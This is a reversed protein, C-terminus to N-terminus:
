KGGSKPLNAPTVQGNTSKMASPHQHQQAAAAANRQHLVNAPLKKGTGKSPLQSQQQQQQQQQQTNMQGQGGIAFGGQQQHSYAAQAQNTNYKKLTKPTGQTTQQSGDANPAKLNLEWGQKQKNQKLQNLSLKDTPVTIPQKPKGLGDVLKHLDDTFTGKKPITASAGQSQQGNSNTNMVVNSEGEVVTLEVDEGVGHQVDSSISTVSSTNMPQPAPLNASVAQQTFQQPSTNRPVAGAEQSSQGSKSSATSPHTNVQLSYRRVAGSQVNKEKNRRYEELEKKHRDELEEMEKRQRQLLAQLEKDDPDLEFTSPRVTPASGPRTKQNQPLPPKKDTFPANELQTEDPSEPVSDVKQNAPIVKGKEVNITASIEEVSVDSGDSTNNTDIPVNAALDEVNSIQQITPKEDKLDSDSDARKLTDDVAPTIQFRGKVVTKPEARKDDKNEESLKNQAEVADTAQSVLQNVVSEVDKATDTNLNTAVNVSQSISSSQCPENSFNPDTPSVFFRGRKVPEVKEAATGGEQQVAESQRLNVPVDTQSTQRVMFTIGDDSSVSSIRGEHLIDDEVKQVQFRTGTVATTTITSVAAASGVDSITPDSGVPTLPIHPASSTHVVNTLLSQMQVSGSTPVPLPHMSPITISQGIGGYQAPQQPQGPLPASAVGQPGPHMPMMHPPLLQANQQFPQQPMGPAQTFHTSLPVFSSGQTGPQQVISMDQSSLSVAPPPLSSPPIPQKHLQQLKADLERIDILQAKSTPKPTSSGYHGQPTAQTPVMFQGPTMQGSMTSPTVSTTPFPQQFMGPQQQPMFGPQPAGPLTQPIQATMPYVGKLTVPPHINPQSLPPMSQVIPQPFPQNQPRAQQNVPIDQTPQQLIQQQNAPVGPQQAAMAQQNAPVQQNAPLAQNAAIQSGSASVAQANPEGVQSQSGVVPSSVSRGPPGPQSVKGENAPKSPTSSVGSESVTQELKPQNEVVSATSQPISQMNLTLNPQGNQLEDQQSADKSAVLQSEEDGSSKSSNTVLKEANAPQINPQLSVNAQANAPVNAGKNSKFPSWGEAGEKVTPTSPVSGEPTADSHQGNQTQLTALQAMHQTDEVSTQQSTKRQAKPSTRQIEEPSIPGKGRARNIVEKIQDVFIETHQEALHKCDVLNDKIDEVDDEIAFKFTVTQGKHTELACEVIGEAEVQVISLSPTQKRKITKPKKQREKEQKEKEKKKLKEAATAAANAPTGELALGEKGAEATTPIGSSQGEPPSLIDKKESVSPVRAVNEPATQASSPVSKIQQADPNQQIFQTSQLQSPPPPQAQPQLQGAQFPPQAQVFPQQGPISYQQQGQPQYPQQFQQQFQQPTFQQQSQGQQPPYAQQSQGPQLQYQQSQGPQPPFQQQTQQQFQQQSQGPQPQFQQQPPPQQQQPPPPPPQQFQQQPQGQQIPFQQQQSQGSQHPQYTQSQGPQPPMPQYPQPPMHQFQQTPQFPQSQSYPAQFQQHYPQDQSFPQQPPQFPQGQSTHLQQYQQQGQQYPPPQQYSSYQMNNAPYVQPFSTGQSTVFQGQQGPYQNAPYQQSLPQSQQYPFSPQSMHKSSADSGIGSDLNGDSAAHQVSQQESDQQHLQRERGLREKEIREKELREKEQQKRERNRKATAVRDRISKAVLKQDGENLFGSKVMEAAVQEPDDKRLDFGFQLAENDRHKDKRKKPDEVRLRLQIVDEQTEEILEVKFGTDEEFFELSLLEKATYREDSKPRTCGNIIDKIEPNSVKELSLPRVGSTVRRYIQAANHCEAYPYESTAMELMCMGFAYIDISEDYHEEYMEPAM